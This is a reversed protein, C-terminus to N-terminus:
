LALIYWVAKQMLLVIRESVEMLQATKELDTPFADDSEMVLQIMTGEVHEGEKKMRYVAMIHRIMSRLNDAACKAERREKILSGMWRRVPNVSKRTFETLALGLDRRFMELETPSFSYEFATETLASLIIGIMEPGVEFSTQTAACDKLTHQIWYETKNIAM